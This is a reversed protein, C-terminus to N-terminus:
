ARREWRNGAEAGITAGDKDALLGDRDFVAQVQDVTILDKADVYGIRKGLLIAVQRPVRIKGDLWDRGRQTIRWMGNIKEGELATAPKLPEVLQWHVMKALNGDRHGSFVELPIYTQRLRDSRDRLRRLTNVQSQHLGHRWIRIMKGTLPCVTWHGASLLRGVERALTAVRVCRTRKFGQPKALPLCIHWGRVAKSTTTTPNVLKSM